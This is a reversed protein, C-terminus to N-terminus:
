KGDMGFRRELLKFQRQREAAIAKQEAERQKQAARIEDDTRASSWSEVYTIQEGPAINTRGDKVFLIVIIIPMLIAVFAAIWQHPSRERAFARLDSLLARPSAPRPLAM